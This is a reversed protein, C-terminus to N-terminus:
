PPTPSADVSHRAIGHSDYIEFRVTPAGSTKDFAVHVVGANPEPLHFHVRHAIIPYASIRRGLWPALKNPTQEFPSSCFEWVTIHGGTPTRLLTEVAHASHLDGTLIYAGQINNAALLHLLRRREDPYGNWRDRSFDGWMEYLVSVSSVIFKVPFQDKVELLWTELAEWQARNLMRQGHIRQTRTDMVFFAAPGYTFTYSFNGEDATLMLPRDHKVGEPPQILPPAHMAQHEWYTQIAAQIRRHSLHRAEPPFGKFRRIPRHYAPLHGEYRESSTWAWDDDVEHDDLIMFVPLQQMLKRWAPHGWTHLYVARYDEETLAVRGIGNGWWSDAYIQDGLMLLFRLDHTTRMADLHRLVAGDLRKDPMFCSGFAFAFDTITGPVPATTFAPYPANEAAPHADSLTLAYHYTTAPKLRRVPVRAAFGSSAVLLSAGILRADSLDPKQGVWAYLMGPGDARAWLNVSNHSLGGILPGLVIQDAM